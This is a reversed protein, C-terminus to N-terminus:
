REKFLTVLFHCIWVKLKVMLRINMSSILCIILLRKLRIYPLLHIYILIGVVTLIIISCCIIGITVKRKKNM